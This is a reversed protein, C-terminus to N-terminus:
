LAKLSRSISPAIANICAPDIPGIGPLTTAHSATIGHPLVPLPLERRDRALDLRLSEVLIRVSADDDVHVLDNVVGLTALQEGVRSDPM